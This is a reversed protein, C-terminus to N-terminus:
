AGHQSLVMRRLRNRRYWAMAAANGKPWVLRREHQPVTAGTRQRGRDAAPTPRRLCRLPISPPPSPPAGAAAAVVAADLTRAVLSKRIRETIWMWDDNLGCGGM